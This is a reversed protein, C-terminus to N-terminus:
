SSSLRKYFGTENGKRASALRSAESPGISSNAWQICARRVQKPVPIHQKALSHKPCIKSAFSSRSRSAWCWPMNPCRPYSDRISLHIVNRICLTDKGQAHAKLQPIAQLRESFIVQVSCRSSDSWSGAIGSTFGTKNTAIIKFFKTYKLNKCGIFCFTSSYPKPSVIINLLDNTRVRVIM